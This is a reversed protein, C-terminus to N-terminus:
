DGKTIETVYIRQNAAGQLKDVAERMNEAEVEEERKPTKGDEVTYYEVKFRKM